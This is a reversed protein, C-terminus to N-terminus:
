RDCSEKSLHNWVTEYITQEEHRVLAYDRRAMHLRAVRLISVLLYEGTARFLGKGVLRRWAELGRGACLKGGSPYAIHGTMGPDSVVLPDMVSSDVTHLRAILIGRM